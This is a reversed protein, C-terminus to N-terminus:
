LEDEEPILGFEIQGLEKNVLVRDWRYPGNVALGGFDGNICDQKYWRRMKGADFDSKDYPRRFAQKLKEWGAPGGVDESCPHGEGAVCIATKTSPTTRGVCEIRHMWSNDDIDYQYIIVNDDKQADEFVESFLTDTSSRESYSKLSPRDAHQEDARQIVRQNLKLRKDNKEVSFQYPHCQGWGFAKQIVLHLDHFNITAPVSLHRTVVPNDTYLITVELLFNPDLTPSDM